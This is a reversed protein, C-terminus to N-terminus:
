MPCAHQTVSEHCCLFQHVLILCIYNPKALCGDDHGCVTCIINISMCLICQVESALM